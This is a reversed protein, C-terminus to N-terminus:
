AGTGGPLFLAIGRSELVKAIVTLAVLLVCMLSFITPWSSPVFFGWLVGGFFVVALLVVWFLGIKTAKWNGLHDPYKRRYRRVYLWGLFGLMLGLVAAAGGIAITAESLM